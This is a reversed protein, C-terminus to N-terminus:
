WPFDSRDSLLPIATFLWVLIPTFFLSNIFNSELALGILSIFVALALGDRRFVGRLSKAILSLYFLIYFLLGPIGTTALVLLLSSDSGSGARGGEPLNYDFFGYSQQAARFNNFGVGFVPNEAAITLTREWSVFRLKASDDPDTIGSIRTQVRPIFFYALFAVLCAIILFKRSRFIGLFTVSVAFMLYASRSFTLVLALLLIGSLLYSKLSRLSTVSFVLNLSLVIFAGSFNPDLFSSVLRNKHPDYGLISSLRTLDPLFILQVFGTFSIILGALILVTVVRRSFIRGLFQGYALVSFYIGFYILFRVLYSFGNLGQSFNLWQSNYIFTIVAWSIFIAGFVLPYDAKIEKIRFSIFFYILSVATFVATFIDLFYLNFFGGSGSVLGFQGATLSLIVLSLLFLPLNM